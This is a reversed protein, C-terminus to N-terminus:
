SLDVKRRIRFYPCQRSYFDPELNTKVFYDTKKMAKFCFVFSLSSHTKSLCLTIFFHHTFCIKLFKECYIMRNWIFNTMKLSYKWDSFYLIIAQCFFLEAFFVLFVNILLSMGRMGRTIWLCEFDIRKVLSASFNNTKKKVLKFLNGKQGYLIKFSIRERMSFFTAWKLM